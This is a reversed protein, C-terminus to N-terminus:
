LYPLTATGRTESMDATLQSLKSQLASTSDGVSKDCSNCRTVFRGQADEVPWFQRPGVQAGPDYQPTHHPAEKLIAGVRHGQPCELKLSGIGENNSV